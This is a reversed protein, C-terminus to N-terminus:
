AIVESNALLWNLRNTVLAHDTGSFDADAVHFGRVTFLYQIASLDPPGYLASLDHWDFDWRPPRPAIQARFPPWAETWGGFCAVTGCDPPGDAAGRRWDRLCVSVNAEPVSPWMVNLAELLNDRQKQTVRIM